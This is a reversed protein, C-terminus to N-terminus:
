LQLHPIFMQNNNVIIQHDSQISQNQYKINISIYYMYMYM